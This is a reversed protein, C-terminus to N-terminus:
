KAGERESALPLTQSTQECLFAAKAAKTAFPNCVPSCYSRKDSPYPPYFITSCTLCQLAPRSKIRMTGACERSCYRSVGKGGTNKPKFVAGCHLCEREQWKRRSDAFCSRSCYNRREDRTAFFSGCQECNRSRLRETEASRAASFALYDAISMRRHEKRRLEAAAMSACSDCCYKVAKGNREGRDIPIPKGCRRFACFGKSTDTDAFEPQGQWWTPRVAGIQALAAAVVEVATHDADPWRWGELCLSSRVGNRCAGEFAFRTPEGQKLIGAIDSVLEDFRIRNLKRPKTKSAKKQRERFDDWATAIRLRRRTEPTIQLM